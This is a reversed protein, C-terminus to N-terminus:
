SSLDTSQSSIMRHPYTRLIRDIEALQAASTMPNTSAVLWARHYGRSALQDFDIQTFGMAVKTPETLSQNLDSVEPKVSYPYGQLYYTSLVCSDLAPHFVIDGAQWGAKIPQVWESIKFRAGQDPFYHSVLAIGIVPILILRAVRRNPASLHQLAYAWFLMMGLMSPMLARALYVSRWLL